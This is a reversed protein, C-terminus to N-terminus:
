FIVVGAPLAVVTGFEVVVAGFPATTTGSTTPRCTRAAKDIRADPPYMDTPTKCPSQEFTGSPTTQAWVGAGPDM